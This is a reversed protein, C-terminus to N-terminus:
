RKKKEITITDGINFYGTPLIIRTTISGLGVEETGQRMCYYNSFLSSSQEIKTVIFPNKNDNLKPSSYYCSGLSFSLLILILYKKM